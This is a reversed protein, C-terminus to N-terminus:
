APVWCGHFAMPMAFPLKITAIPPRSVDNGDLILLDTRKEVFRDVVTLIYGDGEPADASKPVFVPEQAAAGQLEHVRLEGTDWLIQGVGMQPFDRLAFYGISYKSMAYRDDIKPMDGLAGEVPELTVAEADPKSLDFTIRTIQTITEPMTPFRGNKDAFFSFCNGPSCPTDIIVKDGESYANMVHGMVLGPIDFWRMDKAPDGDRPMVGWASPLDPDFEYYPKGARLRKESATLPMIPFVLHERTVGWDHSLGPYPTDFWQERVLKGDKDFVHLSADTTPEGSAFVGYSWWEGTVPDIKPHATLATSKLDGFEGVGLTELTDLDVRYPHSDERLMFLEGHHEFAYTNGTNDRQPLNSVSPDDTYKNRYHGYLRRRAAREAKLRETQVYRSRFSVRGDEFWFASVMGDGNLIIDDELTPYQRDGGTRYYAGQLVEPIEGEVECEYVDAEFRMPMRQQLGFSAYSYFTEPM